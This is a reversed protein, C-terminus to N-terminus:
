QNLPTANEIIEESREDVEEFTVKHDDMWKYLVINRQGNYRARLQMKPINEQIEEKDQSSMLMEVGSTGVGIICFWEELGEGPGKLDYQVEIMSSMEPESKERHVLRASVNKPVEPRKERLWSWFEEFEIEIKPM